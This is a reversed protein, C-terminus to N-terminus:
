LSKLYENTCLELDKLRTEMVYWSVGFGQVYRRLDRFSRISSQRYEERMWKEPMLLEAAFQDAEEKLVVEQQKTIKKLNFLCHGMVIHGLEHAYPWEYSYECLPRSIYVRYSGDIDRTCEGEIKLWDVLKVTAYHELIEHAPVIPYSIEEKKRINNAMYNAFDLRAILPVTM